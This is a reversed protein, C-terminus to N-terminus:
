VTNFGPVFAAHPPSPSAATNRNSLILFMYASSPSLQVASHAILVVWRLLQFHSFRYLVSPQTEWFGEHSGQLERATPNAPWAQTPHKPQYPTLM